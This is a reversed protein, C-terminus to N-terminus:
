ASSHVTDHEAFEEGVSEFAKWKDSLLHAFTDVNREYTRQISGLECLVLFPVLGHIDHLRAFTYAVLFIQHLVRIHGDHLHLVVCAWCGVGVQILGLARGIHNTLRLRMRLCFAM